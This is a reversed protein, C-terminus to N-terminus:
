NIQETYYINLKLRKEENAADPGYLVTGLPTILSAAPVRKVDEDSSQRVVSNNILNINQSVALGLKVNTSDANLVRRIHETIRMKYRIGNGDDDRELIGLHRENSTSATQNAQGQSDFVYDALFVNNKLDYLYLREPEESNAMKERDVYFTLNAENILWNNERLYELEDSVGDGNADAGTFLEIVAMAGEGGKLYLRDNDQQPLDQRFTSVRQPGFNLKFSNSVDITESDDNEERTTYYLTIGAGTGNLDMLAMTGEGNVAETKFYIGRFYDRFNNAGSLESAGEKRIIKQQFFEKSLKLRMAPASRITDVVGEQDEEFVVVESSSPEFDSSEFLVNSTLNQEIQPYMDSYYKQTREFGTAPDYENLFFNSEIISLKIPGKGYVSDLEYATVGDNTEGQTSLYPITLVVSDLVPENGFTPNASSLNVETLLGATQIGFVPDSYVGLLNLWKVSNGENFTLNNTQVSQIDATNASVGAEEYLEANFGPEGILDGGISGIDNECGTFSFAAILIAAIRLMTYKITM